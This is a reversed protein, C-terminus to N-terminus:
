RLFEIAFRSFEIPNEIQFLHAMRPILILKLNSMSHAQDLIDRPPCLLDEEGCLALMPNKITKFLSRSDFKILADLQFKQELESQIEPTKAIQDISQSVKKSDTMYSNSFLLPMVGEIIRSIPIKDMRLHFFFHFIAAAVPSVKLLPHVLVVKGIDASFKHAMAQAVASGMSSGMVHPRHLGLHAILGMADSAMDEVNYPAQFSESRGVGRNDVMILQFHDALGEPVACVSDWNHHDSSYGAIMVLPHGKGKVEYNLHIGNIKALPM